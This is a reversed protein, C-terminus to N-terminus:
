SIIAQNSWNRTLLDLKQMTYVIRSLSQVIMRTLVTLDPQANHADSTVQQPIGAKIVSSQYLGETSAHTGLLAPLLLHALRPM